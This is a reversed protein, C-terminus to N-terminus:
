LYMYTHIHTFVIGLVHVIVIRYLHWRLVLYRDVLWFRLHIQGLVEFVLVEPGSGKDIIM